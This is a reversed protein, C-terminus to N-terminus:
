AIDTRGFQAKPLNKHLKIRVFTVHLLIQSLGKCFIPGNLYYLQYYISQCHSAKFRSDRTDSAVAIGVAGCGHDKTVEINLSTGM